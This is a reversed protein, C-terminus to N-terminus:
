QKNCIEKLKKIVEQNLKSSDCTDLFKDIEEENELKSSFLNKFYESM